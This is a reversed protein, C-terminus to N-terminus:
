LFRDLIKKGARDLQGIDRILFQIGHSDAILLGQAGIRRIDEEGRLVFTTEGRDTEVQWTCPTAFSTVSVIRSIEPMFERAALEEEILQKQSEPLDSLHAIWAAEHGDSSMLAIGENPAAIPWARVPVVDEIVEGDARKLVLRGFANRTLDFAQTALNLGTM